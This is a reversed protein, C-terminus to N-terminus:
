PECGRPKMIILRKKGYNEFVTAATKALVGEEVVIKDNLVVPNDMSLGLRGLEEMNGIHELNNLMFETVMVDNFESSVEVGSHKAIFYGLEHGIAESEPYLNVLHEARSSMINFLEPDSNIRLGMHVKSIDSIDMSDIVKCTSLGKLTAVQRAGSGTIAGQSTLTSSMMSSPGEISEPSAVASPIISSHCGFTGQSLVSPPLTTSPDELGGPSALTSSMMLGHAEITDHHAVVYPTMEIYIEPFCGLVYAALQTSTAHGILNLYDFFPVLDM